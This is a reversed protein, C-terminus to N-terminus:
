FWVWGVKREISGVEPEKRDGEGYFRLGDEM